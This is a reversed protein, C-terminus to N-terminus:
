QLLVGPKQFDADKEETRRRNEEERFFDDDRIGHFEAVPMGPFPCRSKLVAPDKM